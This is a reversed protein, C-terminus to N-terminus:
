SFCAAIAQPVSDIPASKDRLMTSLVCAFGSDTITKTCAAHEGAQWNRFAFCVVGIQAPTVVEWTEPRQRLHSGAFEALENGRHM